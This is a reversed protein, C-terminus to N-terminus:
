RGPSWNPGGMPRNTKSRGRKANFILHTFHLSDWQYCRARGTAIIEGWQLRYVRGTFDLRISRNTSTKRASNIGWM